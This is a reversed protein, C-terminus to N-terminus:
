QPQGKTKLTANERRVSHSIACYRNCTRMQARIPEAEQYWFRRLDGPGALPLGAFDAAFCLRATGYLDVMINREYTNCIHEETGVRSNWGQRADGNRNVSRVYMQVDDLWAPNLGLRYKADCARIVAALAEPDRVHYRAFFEDEGRLGFTPQLFNLKLKDAGIDNLALDYFADLQRYNGEHVLAMVYVRTGREPHCKRAQVLLRLANVAARFSGGVGRMRDHEDEIHSDLSVTVESPGELVMREAMAENTVQTGNIVSLCRLGARACERAIAFYDDPDLMSEGGCVVVAGGPSMEAFERIVERKRDWPMYNARDGDDDKWFDCHQCALNCRRNVHVFLFRPPQLVRREAASSPAAAPAHKDEPQLGNACRHQGHRPREYYARNSTGRTPVEHHLLLVRSTDMVTRARLGAIQLRLGLDLDADGWAQFEEDFGNIEEFAARPMSARATTLHLRRMRAETRGFWLRRARRRFKAADSALKRQRPDRWDPWVEELRGARILEETVRATEEPTLQMGCGGVWFRSGALALHRELVDPFLVDGGDTFFLYNGTAHRVANNRSAAVRFGHHEQRAYVVRLPSRGILEEIARVHEPDSGDDAIIVERPRVTQTEISALSLRLYNSRNWTTVIISASWM